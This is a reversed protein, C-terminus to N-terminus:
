EKIARQLAIWAQGLSLGGDNPPAQCAGHVTLGNQELRRQVQVRLLRNLFCGGSLGVDSVAERLAAQTVWDALALALTAHFLAAGCAPDAPHDALWGLLPLLDLNGEETLRYGEALPELPGYFRPWRKWNWRRRVKTTA